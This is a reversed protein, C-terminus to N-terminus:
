RGKAQGWKFLSRKEREYQTFGRKGMFYDITGTIRAISIIWRYCFFEVMALLTLYLIYGVKFVRQTNIFAFISSLTMIAQCLLMLALFALFMATDFVGNVWGIIALVISSVEFFVGFVEYLIFYPLTIFAFLGYRPNMFMYKYRWATENTVRQWRNRQVILSPVTNPGDTWSVIYPLMLIKYGKEKNKAAYDHARFTLEIDECTFDSSFGGLEYLIDRRWIGFGGAITPMANFKSWAIRNGMFSRIYELNQYAILPNYSFSKNTIRGKDVKIGNSIGFYSGVGIIKEPEREVHAMVRLLSDPELVTDADIVCVYKNRAINLGANVAGAKKVGPHKSIVKVNPYVSSVLIERVMGDKYHKVYPMDIPKLKLINDLIEPTRDSSGDDVIIVEFDPYNLKLISYLSDRIWGEENRAPMVISVPIALSSFYAMAYDEEAGEKARVRGERLGILSLLLYYVMVLVFYGFFVFFLIYSIRYLIDM